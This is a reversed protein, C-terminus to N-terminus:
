KETTVTRRKPTLTLIESGFTEFLKDDHSDMDAPAAYALPTNLYFAFKNNENRSNKEEDSFLRKCERCFTNM